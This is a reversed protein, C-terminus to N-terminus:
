AAVEMDAIGYDALDADTWPPQDWPLGDDLHSNRDTTAAAATPRARHHRQRPRAGKRDSATDDSAMTTTTASAGLCSFPLAQTRATGIAGRDQCQPVSTLDIGAQEPGGAAGREVVASPTASATGSNGAVDGSIVPAEETSIERLQGHAIDGPSNDMHSKKGPQKPVNRVSWIQQTEPQPALARLAVVAPVDITIQDAVRWGDHQNPKRHILGASELESLAARINQEDRPVIGNMAGHADDRRQINAIAIRNPRNKPNLFAIALLTMTANWSLKPRSTVTRAVEFFVDGIRNGVDILHRVHPPPEPLLDGTLKCRRNLPAPFAPTDFLFRYKWEGNFKKRRFSPAASCLSSLASVGRRRCAGATALIEMQRLRAFGCEDVTASAIQLAIRGHLNGGPFGGAVFLWVRAARQKGFRVEDTSFQEPITEITEAASKATSKAAHRQMISLLVDRDAASCEDLDLTVKFQPNKPM